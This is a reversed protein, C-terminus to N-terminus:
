EVVTVDEAAEVAEDVELLEAPQVETVDEDVEVTEVDDIRGVVSVVVTEVLVFAVPTTVEVVSTAGVIVNIM